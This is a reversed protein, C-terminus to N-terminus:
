FFNYVKLYNIFEGVVDPNKDYLASEIETEDDVIVNNNKLINFAMDNNRGESFASFAGIILGKNILDKQYDLRYKEDILLNKLDKDSISSLFNICENIVENASVEVNPFAYKDGSKKAWNRLGLLKIFEKGDKGLIKGNITIDNGNMLQELEKDINIQVTNIYELTSIKNLATKTLKVNNSNVKSSIAIGLSFCNKFDNVNRLSTGYNFLRKTLSGNDGIQMEIVFVCVNNNIEIECVIDARISKKANKQNLEPFENVLFKLKRIKNDGPFFLANLLARLRKESGECGFLLKFTSDYTPDVIYRLSNCMIIGGGRLKFSYKKQRSVYNYTGQLNLLIDNEAM